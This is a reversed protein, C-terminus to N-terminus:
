VHNLLQAHMCECQSRDSTISTLSQSRDSFYVLLSSLHIEKKAFCSLYHLYFKSITFSFKSQNIFFLGGLIKSSFPIKTIVQDLGKIQLIIVSHCITSLPKGLSYLQHLNPLSVVVWTQSEQDRHWLDSGCKTTATLM